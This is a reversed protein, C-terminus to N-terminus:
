PKRKFGFAARLRGIRESLVSPQRAITGSPLSRKRYLDRSLVTVAARNIEDIKMVLDLEPHWYIALIRYPTGDMRIFDQCQQVRVSQACFQAVGEATPWNGVRELWREEFHRTLTLAQQM